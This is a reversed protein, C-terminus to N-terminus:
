AMAADTMRWGLPSAANQTQACLHVPAQDANTIGGMRANGTYGPV